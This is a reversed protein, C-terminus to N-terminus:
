GYEVKGKDIASQFVNILDAFQRRNLRWSYVYREGGSVDVARMSELIGDSVIGELRTPPHGGQMYEMSAWRRTSGM